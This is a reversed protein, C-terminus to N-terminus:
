MRGLYIVSMKRALEPQEKEIYEVTTAKSDWYYSYSYRGRSHEKALGLASYIFRELIRVGAAAKAIDTGRSVELDFALESSTKDAATSKASAKPNLYTAQSDTNAFITNASAFARSSQLLTLSTARSKQWWGVSPKLLPPHPSVPSVAFTGIPYPSFNEHWQPAKTGLHM